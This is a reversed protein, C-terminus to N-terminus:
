LEKKLMIIENTEYAIIFGNKLFLKIAPNNISIDDYLTTIDNNKATNCLMNLAKAGYGKHRYKAHIIISAIYINRQKDYYYAVEGIFKNTSDDLLYRYYHTNTNLWKNYWTQWKDKPFDITGGYDKNYEMTDQNNLLEQRFWLDEITPKYLAIM